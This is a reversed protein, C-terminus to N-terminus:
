FNHGKSGSFLFMLLGVLIVVNVLDVEGEGPNSLGTYFLWNYVSIGM